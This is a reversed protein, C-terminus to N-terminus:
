GYELFGAVRAFVDVHVFASDRVADSIIKIPTLGLVTATPGAAVDLL